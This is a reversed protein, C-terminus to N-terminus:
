FVLMFYLFILYLHKIYWIYATFLMCACPCPLLANHTDHTHTSWLRLHRQETYYIACLGLHSTWPTESQRMVQIWSIVHTVASSWVSPLVAGSVEDLKRGQFNSEEVSWWMHIYVYEFILTLVKVYSYNKKFILDADQWQVKKSCPILIISNGKMSQKSQFATLM